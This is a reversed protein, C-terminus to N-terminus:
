KRGKHEKQGKEAQQLKEAKFRPIPIPPPLGVTSSLQIAQIMAKLSIQDYLIATMEDPFKKSKNWEKMLEDHKKQDSLFLVEGNIILMGLDPTYSNRFDFTIKIGKQKQSGMVFDIEEASVLGINTNISVAGRSQARKEVLM